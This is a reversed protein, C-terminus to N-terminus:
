GRRRKAAGAVLALGAALMAWTGPEPVAVTIRADDFLAGFNDASSTDVSATFSGATLAKFAISWTQFPDSSPVSTSSTFGFTTIGEFLRQDGFGGGLEYWAVTVPGSFSFGLGFDNWDGRQSGGISASFRVVDGAAFAYSQTTTMRGPGPSGDLDVFAGDGALGFDGDQVLDVAGQVTWNAFGTYNLASTGGNESDFDDALVTVAQASAAATALVAAAALRTFTSNM